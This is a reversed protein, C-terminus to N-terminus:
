VIDSLLLIDKMKKGHDMIDNEGWEDSYEEMMIKQKISDFSTSKKYFDKKAAPLFNSLRSNKSSSILCLNGFNDLIDQGFRSNGESIPHQPYYHEVSSRFTYEFEQYKSKDNKWLLYDLYNFVFNEVFTGRDLKSDDFVTNQPVGDNTFIIKDYDIPNAALFRDFIFSKALSELYNKYKSIGHNESKYNKYMYRLAANLWNKYVLTPFSVHFMALLMIIDHNDSEDDDNGFSNVYSAGNDNKLRQLSWHDKNLDRKIIYQDFLLKCKLLNFGFNKIFDIRQSDNDKKLYREFIEILRKDDLAIDSTDEQIRLVHLLFNSFNIISNFREPVNDTNGNHMAAPSSKIIDEIKIAQDCVTKDTNQVPMVANSIEDFNHCAITDWNAGFLVNRQSTNFGYQIYREMNSCAEWIINFANSLVDRNPDKNLVDILRSKLIEHKELQEGRTNMIEFYHNLDTDKPVPVRLIYVNNLLYELFSLFKDKPITKLIKLTDDYAQKIDANYENYDIKDPSSFLTALTKTSIARSKFGLNINRYWDSIDYTENFENKIVNLAILLTTLRQQGDIIEFVIFGDTDREFVILTGIYYSQNKESYDFIDQILQSIEPEGWAYNRQYVPILYKDKSFLNKVSMSDINSNAMM